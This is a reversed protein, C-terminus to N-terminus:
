YRNSNTESLESRIGQVHIRRNKKLYFGQFHIFNIPKGTQNKELSVSKGTEPNMYYVKAKWHRYIQSKQNKHM